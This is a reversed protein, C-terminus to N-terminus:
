PLFRVQEQDIGAVHQRQRKKHLINWYAVPAIKLSFHQMWGPPAFLKSLLFLQIKMVVYWALEMCFYLSQLPIHGVISRDKCKSGVHYTSKLRKLLRLKKMVCMAM